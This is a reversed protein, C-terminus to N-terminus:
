KLFHPNLVILFNGNFFFIELSQPDGIKLVTKDHAKVEDVLLKLHYEIDYNIRKVGVEVERKM